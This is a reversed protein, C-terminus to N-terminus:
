WTRSLAAARSLRTHKLVDLFVRTKRMQKLEGKMQTQETEFKREITDVRPKCTAPLWPPVHAARLCLM